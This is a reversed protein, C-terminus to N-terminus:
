ERLPARAFAYGVYVQENPFTQQLTELLEARHGHTAVALVNGRVIGVYKEQFFPEDRITTFTEDNVRFEQSLMEELLASLARPSRRSAANLYASTAHTM